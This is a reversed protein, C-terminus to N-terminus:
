IFIKCYGRSTVKSRCIPCLKARVANLVCDSCLVHGCNKIAVFHRGNMFDDKTDLCVPCSTGASASPGAAVTSTGTAGAAATASVSTTSTSTEGISATGAISSSSGAASTSSSSSSTSIGEVILTSTSSSGYRDRTSSSSSGYLDRTSSPTPNGSTRSDGVRFPNCKIQPIVSLPIWM